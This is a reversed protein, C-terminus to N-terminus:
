LQINGGGHTIMSVPDMDVFGAKSWHDMEKADTILRFEPRGELVHVDPDHIEVTYTQRSTSQNILPVVMLSPTGAVVNLEHM